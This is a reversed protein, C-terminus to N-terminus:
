RRRPEAEALIRGVRELVGAWDGASTQRVLRASRYWPTGDGERLWRWDPNHPLLILTPIGLGAALHAISTDVTVVRDMRSVLAAVQSFGATGLDPSWVAGEDSADAGRPGFQLSTWAMGPRDNILSRMIPFPLSRRRDRPHAPNGAWCLGVRLGDRATLLSEWAEALEPDIPPLASAPPSNRGEDLVLPLSLLPVFAALSPIAQRRGQIRLRANAMGRAWELLEDQIQLVLDLQPYKEQLLPLYRLFQLTDGLGQEACVALTGGVAHEGAWRPVHLAQPGLWTRVKEAEDRFEFGAWGADWNGHLLDLMGKTFRARRNSPDLRIAADLASGAGDFNGSAEMAMALHLHADTHDPHCRVADRARGLAREPQDLDIAV